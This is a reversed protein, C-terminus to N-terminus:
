IRLDGDITNARRDSRSWPPSSCVPSVAPLIVESRIQPAIRDPGEKITRLSFTGSSLQNVATGCGVFQNCTKESAPSSFSAAGSTQITTRLSFTGSSLQNVATGCGVFQNCTKESAPSSFSTAGFTQITTSLGVVQNTYPRSQGAGVLCGQLEVPRPPPLAAPPPLAMGALMSEATPTRGGRPAVKKGGNESITHAFKRATSTEQQESIMSLLRQQTKQQAADRKRVNSLLTANLQALQEDVRASTADQSGIDQVATPAHESHPRPVVSTLFYASVRRQLTVEMGRQQHSDKAISAAPAPPDLYAAPRNALLCAYHSGSRSSNISFQRHKIAKGLWSCEAQLIFAARVLGWRRQEYEIMRSYSGTLAALLVAIRM